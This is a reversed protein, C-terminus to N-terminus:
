WSYYCYCAPDEGAGELHSAGAEEEMVGSYLPSDTSWRGGDVPEGSTNPHSRDIYHAWASQKSPQFFPERAIRCTNTPNSNEIFGPVDTWLTCCSVMMRPPLYSVM